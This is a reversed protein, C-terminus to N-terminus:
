RRRLVRNRVRRLAFFGRLLAVQLWPLWQEKEVPMDTGALADEIQGACFPTLRRPLADRDFWRVAVSEWDHASPDGGIVHALYLRQRDGGRPMQPRWYEGVFRDLAVEYGTEEHAERVATQEPTEGPERGGGPLTWMRLDERLVLLVQGRESRVVVKSSQTAM